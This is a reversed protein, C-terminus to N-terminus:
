AAVRAPAVTVVTCGSAVASSNALCSRSEAARQITVTEGSSSVARVAASRAPPMRSIKTHSLAGPWRESMSMSAVVAGSGTTSRSGASSTATSGYEEPVM